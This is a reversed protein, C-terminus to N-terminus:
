IRAHERVAAVLLMGIGLLMASLVVVTIVGRIRKPHTEDNPISPNAITALYRHQRTAETRAVELSTLASQYAHQAFEKEVMAADFEAMANALGKDNKPNILRRSEEAVQASLSRVREELAVVRPANPQMFARAEMLEARSKALEGKLEGRLTFAETATKEPNFEAHTQQLKVIAQRAKTLRQEANAVETRAVQTQDLRARESLQNVMRESESLVAQSLKKAYDPTFARVRLTLVGSNSDHDVRVMDQYYDYTDELSADKSLRAWWDYKADNFHQSLHEQKELYALMDRSLIFDRVALTDRTAAAGPVVGILTEIGGIGHGEASQVMFMSVSEYQSSALVFFYVSAVVAPLGIGVAARWGLARARQRRLARVVEAAERPRGTTVETKPVPGSPSPVPDGVRDVKKLPTTSM